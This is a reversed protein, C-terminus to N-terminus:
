GHNKAKNHKTRAARVLAMHAHPKPHSATKNKGRSQYMGLNKLALNVMAADKQEYAHNVINVLRLIRSFATM